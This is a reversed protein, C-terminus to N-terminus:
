LLLILFCPVFFMLDTQLESHRNFCLHNRVYGEEKVKVHAGRLSETAASLGQTALICSLLAAAISLKMTIPQDQLFHFHFSHFNNILTNWERRLIGM